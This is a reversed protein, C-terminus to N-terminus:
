PRTPGKTFNSRYRSSVNENNCKMLFYNIQDILKVFYKIFDGLCGVKLLDKKDQRRAWIIVFSYTIFVLALTAIVSAQNLPSFKLFVTSFDIINPQVYFSNAFTM